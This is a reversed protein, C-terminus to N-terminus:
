YAPALIPFFLLSDYFSSALLERSSRRFRRKAAQLAQTTSKPALDEEVSEGALESRLPADLLFNMHKLIGNLQRRSSGAENKPLFKGTKAGFSQYRGLKADNEM